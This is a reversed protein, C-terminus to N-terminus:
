EIEIHYYFFGSKCFLRCIYMNKAVILFVGQQNNAM